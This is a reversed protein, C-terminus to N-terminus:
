KNLNFIEKVKESKSLYIFWSINVILSVMLKPISDNLFKIKVSDNTIYYYIIFFIISVFINLRLIFKVNIIGKYNGELIMGGCVIGYVMLFFEIIIELVIFLDTRTKLFFLDENDLLLQGINSLIIIPTLIRLGIVLLKLWINLKKM